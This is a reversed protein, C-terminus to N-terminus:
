INYNRTGDINLVRHLYIEGMQQFEAERIDTSFLKIEMNSMKLIRTDYWIPFYKNKIM